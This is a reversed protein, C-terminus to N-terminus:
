NKAARIVNAIALDRTAVDISFYVVSFVSTSVPLVDKLCLIGKAIRV